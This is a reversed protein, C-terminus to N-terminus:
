HTLADSILIAATLKEFVTVFLNVLFQESSVRIGAMGRRIFLIVACM